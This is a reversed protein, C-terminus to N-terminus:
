FIEYFFNKQLKQYKKFKTINKNKKFKQIKKYKKQIKQCILYTNYLIKYFDQNNTINKLLNALKIM